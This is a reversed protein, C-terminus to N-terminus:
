RQPEVTVVLSADHRGRAGYRLTARAPGASPAGVHLSKGRCPALHAAFYQFSPSMVGPVAGLDVGASRAGIRDMSACIEGTARAIESHTTGYHNGRTGENRRLFSQASLVFFLNVAIVVGAIAKFTWSAIRGVRGWLAAVRCTVFAAFVFTVWWVPQIYHPHVLDPRLGYYYFTFLAFALVGFRAVVADRRFFLRGFFYALGIWAAARLGWAPDYQVLSALPANMESRVLPVLPQDAFYDMGNASLFRTAKLMLEPVTQTLGEVTFRFSGQALIAPLMLKLYYGAIALFAAGFGLLARGAAAFSKTRIVAELWLAGAAALVPLVMLHTCVAAGFLAGLVISVRWPHEKLTDVYTLTLVVGAVIPLLLTNDWALRSYFFLYPSSAALAVSWAAVDRGLSRRVAAYLIWIGALLFAAHHALVAKVEDTFVRVPLYFWLATPGYEVGRTGALGKGPLTGARMHHDIISQLQPEDNIFPATDLAFFRMACLLTAVGLLVREERFARRLSRM